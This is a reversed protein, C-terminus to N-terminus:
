LSDICAVATQPVALTRCAGALGLSGVPLMLGSAADLTFLEDGSCVYLGDDNPHVALGPTTVDESLPYLDTTEGTAVNVSYLYDNEDEIAYPTGVLDSWAVSGVGFSFGLAGVVTGLGTATDVRVLADLASDLGILDDDGVPGLGLSISGLSTPGVIQFSCNCPNIADIRGAADNHGWLTGSRDFVLSTYAVTSALTCIETTSADLGVRVLRPPSTGNDVTLMWEGPMGGASTEDSSSGDASDDTTSPDTSTTTGPGDDTMPGDSTTQPADTLSGGSSGMTTSSPMVTTAGDDDPDEPACALVLAPFLLTSCVLARM